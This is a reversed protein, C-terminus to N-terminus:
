TPDIRREDGDFPSDAQRGDLAEDNFTRDRGALSVDRIASIIVGPDGGKPVFRDAGLNTLRKARRADIEASSFVIIHTSPSVRRLHPLAHWGDMTPMELDLVVLEPKTRDVVEIGEAGNEAEGVITCSPEVALLLKILYRIEPTDDIIVIRCTKLHNRPDGDTAVQGADGYKQVILYHDRRAIVREADLIEHGDIVAFHDPESRIEEYDDVSMTLPVHCARDGCECLVALAEHGLVRAHEGKISVIENAARAEDENRGVQKQSESL